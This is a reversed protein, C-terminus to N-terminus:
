RSEEDAWAQTFSFDVEADEPISSIGEVSVCAYSDATIVPVQPALCTTIPECVSECEGAAVVGASGRVVAEYRAGRTGEPCGAECSVPNDDQGGRAGDACATLPLWALLAAARV